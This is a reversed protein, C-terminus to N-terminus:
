QGGIDGGKITSHSYAALEGHTYDRLEQNLRYMIVYEYALHAPKLEELAATLDPMNPPIGVTGVFRVEFRYEGPYETVEVQGNSFSEAVNQIMAPTTTSVSRAKGRIRSRRYAADKTVDVALGYAREWLSLGWTATELTLQAFLDERAAAAAQAATNFAGQLEVVYPSGAYYEPLLGILQRM